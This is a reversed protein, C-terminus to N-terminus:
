GVWPTEVEKSIVPVTMCRCRLHAPPFLVGSPFEHGVTIEGEEENEMCAVCTVEDRATIWKQKKIGNRKYVEMEMEGMALAVEQEAIMESRERATISAHRHIMQAIEYASLNKDLGAKITQSLWSQTTTDVLNVLEKPRQKINALLGKDTLDFKEGIKLKDLATQGGLNSAWETYDKIEMVKIFQTLPVWFFIIRDLLSEEKKEVRIVKEIKEAKAFYLLQKQIAQEVKKKFAKYEPTNLAEHLFINFRAKYFFSEVLLKVKKLQHSNM